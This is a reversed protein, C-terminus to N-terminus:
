APPAPPLERQWSADRVFAVLRRRAQDVDTGFFGLIRDLSTCTSPALGILERYSSWPFFEPRGCIGGRVPNLVIYRVLELLHSEREVLISHFRRDFAHGEHRHRHNVHEAYRGHLWQMGASVNANPTEVLLHVHNPMLCYCHVLWGYRGVARSVMALYVLRDEDDVFLPLRRVGRGTLHYLGNELQPRQRRAM